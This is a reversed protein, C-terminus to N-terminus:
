ARTLQADIIALFADIRKANEGIDSRGVRSKSRVDVIISTEGQVVRVVVDDKYGWWPTTATAELRGEAEVAAVIELGMEELASKAVAFVEEYTNVYQAPQLHPYAELQAATATTDYEPPNRAEDKERIEVLDVFIPPNQTDTTIDHIAPVEAATKEMVIPGSAAVLAIAGFLIAMMGKGVKGTFIGLLGLLIALGGLGLMVMVLHKLTRFVTGLDIIGMRYGLTLGAYCLASILALWGAGGIIKGM